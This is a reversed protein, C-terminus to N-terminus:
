CSDGTLRQPKQHGRLLPSRPVWPSMLTIELPALTHTQILKRLGAKIEKNFACILSFSASIKNQIKLRLQGRQVKLYLIFTLSLFRSEICRFYSRVSLTIYDVGYIM